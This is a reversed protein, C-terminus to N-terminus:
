VIYNTNVGWRYQVPGRWILKDRDIVFYAQRTFHERVLNDHESNVTRQFQGVRTCQKADHGRTICGSREHDSALYAQEGDQERAQGGM